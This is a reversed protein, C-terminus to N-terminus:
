LGLREAVQVSTLGKRNTDNRHDSIAKMIMADSAIEATEGDSSYDMLDSKMAEWIGIPVLVAKKRGREDTIYEM